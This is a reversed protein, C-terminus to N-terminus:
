GHRSEKVVRVSVYRAHAADGGLSRRTKVELHCPRWGTSRSVWFRRTHGYRDVVEVRKGEYGMLCPTLGSLDRLRAKESEPLRSWQDWSKVDDLTLM